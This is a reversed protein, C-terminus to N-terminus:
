SGVAAWALAALSATSTVTRVLNWRMWAAEVHARVTALDAIRNVRGAAAFADDLPVSAVTVVM